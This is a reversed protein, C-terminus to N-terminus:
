AFYVPLFGDFCMLTRAGLEIAARIAYEGQGHHPGNNFLSVLENDATIAFGCTGEANLYTRTCAYESESYLTIFSDRANGKVAERFAKPSSIAFWYGYYAKNIPANM